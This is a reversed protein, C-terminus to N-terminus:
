RTLEKLTAGYVRRAWNSLHSQDVFGASVAAEALTAHNIRIARVAYALRALAVYRHPSIGVTRSFLRTFHSRSQGTAAAIEDVTLKKNLNARVFDRVKRLEGESLSGTDSKVPSSFHASILRDVFMDTASDWWLPGNAFGSAAERALAYGLRSLAHDRGNMLGVLCSASRVRDAAAFALSRAPVSLVLADVDDSSEADTTMDAPCITVSGAFALHDGRADGVRCRICPIERAAIFVMHDAPTASMYAGGRFRHHSVRLGKEGSWDASLLTEPATGDGQHFATRKTVSGSADKLRHPTEILSSAGPTLTGESDPGIATM